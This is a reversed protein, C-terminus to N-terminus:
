FNLIDIWHQCSTLRWYPNGLPFLVYLNLNTKWLKLLTFICYSYCVIDNSVNLLSINYEKFMYNACQFLYAPLLWYDYYSLLRIVRKLDCTKNFAEYGLNWKYSFLNNLDDFMLIVIHIALFLVTCRPPM